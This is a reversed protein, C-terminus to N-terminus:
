NLTLEFNLRLESARREPACRKKSTSALALAFDEGCLVSSASSIFWTRNLRTNRSDTAADAMARDAIAACGAEAAHVGPEPEPLVTHSEGLAGAVAVASSAVALPLPADAAAGPLV